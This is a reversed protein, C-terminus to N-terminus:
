KQTVQIIAFAPNTGSKSFDYGILAAVTSAIQSQTVAVQKGGVGLPATHPGLVAIWIDEAGDVNRGHNRWETLGSGRGHDTTLVISTKGRYAPISQLTNWLEEVFADVRRASWLVQDYRGDHAYEDTEGYGVFMARPAHKKLYDILSSQLFSDYVLDNWTRTTTQYLRMLEPDSESGAEAVPLEWGAQVPFGCRARNFIRSFADWTGFAAVKGNLEPQRNLWEFVTLNPNPGFDNSDIRADAKGTLMENYGPYSFKLGNTVRATSGQDVDGFVQGQKAIVNWFFPMLAQRRQEQDVRWFDRRIQQPDDVHGHEKDLLAADAGHFVEQWRLGDTVILVVSEDHASVQGVAPVIALLFLVCCSLHRLRNKKGEM